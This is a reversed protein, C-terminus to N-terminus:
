QMKYCKLKWELPVRLGPYVVFEADVYYKIINTNDASLTLNKGKEGKLYKMLIIKKQM